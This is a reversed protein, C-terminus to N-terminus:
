SGSQALIYESGLCYYHRYAGHVSIEGLFDPGDKYFLRVREDSWLYSRYCFFTSAISSSTYVLFISSLTLGNIFSFVLFLGSATSATMRNMGGSIAFVLGLEAIFLIWITFSNGFIMQQISLSHSAFYATIGSICLGPMMWNYVSRLLTKEQTKSPSRQYYAEEHM